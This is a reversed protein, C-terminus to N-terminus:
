IEFLVARIAKELTMNKILRLNEINRGYPKDKSGIILRDTFRYMSYLQILEKAQNASITKDQVSLIRGKKNQKHLMDNFAKKCIGNLEEDKEPLLLVYEQEELCLSKWYQRGKEAALFRQEIINKEM